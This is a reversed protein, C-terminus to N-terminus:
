HVLSLPVRRIPAYSFTTTRHNATARVPRHDSVALCVQAQVASGIDTGDPPAWSFTTVAPVKPDVLEVYGVAYDRCEIGEIVRTAALTPTRATGIRSFPVLPYDRGRHLADCDTAIPHGVPTPIWSNRTDSSASVWAPTQRQYTSGNVLLVESEQHARPAGHDVTRGHEVGLPSLDLAAVHHYYGQTCDLETTDTLIGLPSTAAVTWSLQNLKELAIQGAHFEAVGNPGCACLGALAVLPLQRWGGPRNRRVRVRWDLRGRRVM